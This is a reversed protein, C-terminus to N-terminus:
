FLLLLISAVQMNGVLDLEELTGAYSIPKGVSQHGLRLPKVTEV